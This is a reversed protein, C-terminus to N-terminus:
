RRCPRCRLREGVLVGAVALGPAAVLDDFGGVEGVLAALGHEDLAAAVQARVVRAEVRGDRSTTPPEPLRLVDRLDLAREIGVVGAVHRLSPREHEDRELEGTVLVLGLVLDVGDSAGVAASWRACGSTVSPWNPSAEASFSIPSAKSSSKLFASVSDSGIVSTMRSIANPASTAAPRGSSSPAVATIPVIPRSPGILWSARARRSRRRADHQEDAERDADVVRM